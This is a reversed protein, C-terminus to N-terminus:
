LRVKAERWNQDNQPVLLVKMSTLAIIFKDYFDEEARHEKDEKNTIKSLDTKVNLHGLDLVLLPSKPSTPDQPIIINPAQINVKLDVTKHSQLADELQARTLASLANVSEVAKAKIEELQVDEPPAFFQGIRELCSKNVVIDLPTIALDVAIDAHKDLPNQEFILKLLHSDQKASVIHPFQNDRTIKDDV